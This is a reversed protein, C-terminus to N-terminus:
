ETVDDDEHRMEHAAPDRRYEKAVQVFAFWDYLGHAIMAAVLHGSAAAQVASFYLGIGAALFFYTPTVAHAFGFLLSAGIWGAPEGLKGIWPQIVGRFLFEECVGALAALLALEHWRCESLPRGLTALLLESIRRLPRFPVRTAVFYFAILPLTALLGIVLSRLDPVLGAPRVGSLASLGVAVIALAAEFLAAFRVFSRHDM